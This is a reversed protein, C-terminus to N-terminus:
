QVIAYVSDYVVYYSENKSNSKTSVRFIDMPRPEGTGTYSTSGPLTERAGSSNNDLKYIFFRPDDSLYLSKYEEIDAVYDLNTYPKGNDMDRQSTFDYWEDWDEDRIARYCLTTPCSVNMMGGNNVRYSEFLQHEVANLVSYAASDVNNRDVIGKSMSFQMMASKMSTIGLVSIILLLIIGIALAVGQQKQKLKKNKM